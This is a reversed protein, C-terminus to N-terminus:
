AAAPIRKWDACLHLSPDSPALIPSRRAGDRGDDFLLRLQSYGRWSDPLTTRITSSGRYLGNALHVTEEGTEHDYLMEKCPIINPFEAFRSTPRHGSGDTRHDVCDAGRCLFPFPGAYGGRGPAPLLLSHGQRIGTRISCLKRSEAACLLSLITSFFFLLVCVAVPRTRLSAPSM